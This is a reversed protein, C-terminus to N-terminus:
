DISGKLFPPNYIMFYADLKREFEGLISNYLDKYGASTFQASKLAEYNMGATDGGSLNVLVFLCTLDRILERVMMPIEALEYEIEILGKQKDIFHVGDIMPFWQRKRLSFSDAYANGSSSDCYFSVRMSASDETTSGEIEAKVWMNKENESSSLTCNTVAGGNSKLTITGSTSSSKKVSIIQSFSKETSVSSTGNLEVTELTRNNNVVGYITISQTTDSSSDSSVSIQSASSPQTIESTVAASTYTKVVNEDTDLFELKLYTNGSTNSDVFIRATAKYYSKESVSHTDSKWYSPNSGGKSIKLSHTFKYSYSDDLSLTDGSGAVSTWAQVDSNQTIEVDPNVLIENDSFEDLQTGDITIKSISRFNSIKVKEVKEKEYRTFKAKFLSDGLLIKLEDEAKEILDDLVSDSPKFDDLALRNRIESKTVYAM